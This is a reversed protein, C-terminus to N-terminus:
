RTNAALPKWCTGEIARDGDFANDRRVVEPLWTRGEDTAIFLVNPRLAAVVNTVVCQALLLLSPVRM